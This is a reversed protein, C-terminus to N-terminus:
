TSTSWITQFLLLKLTSWGRIKKQPWFGSGRWWGRWWGAEQSCTPSERSNAAGFGSYAWWGCWFTELLARGEKQSETQLIREIEATFVSSDIHKSFGPSHFPPGCVGHSADLGWGAEVCTQRLQPWNFSLQLLGQLHQHGPHARRLCHPWSSQRERLLCMRGGRDNRLPVLVQCQLTWIQSGDLPQGRGGDEFASRKRGSLFDLAQAHHSWHWVRWSQKELTQLACRELAAKGCVRSTQHFWYHVEEQHPRKNINGTVFRHMSQPWVCKEETNQRAIAIVLRICFPEIASSCSNSTWLLSCCHQPHQLWHHSGAEFQAQMRRAHRQVGNGSACQLAFEWPTRFLHWMCGKGCRSLLSWKCSAGPQLGTVETFSYRQTLFFM